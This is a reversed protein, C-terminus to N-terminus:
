FKPIVVRDMNAEGTAPEWTFRLLPVGRFSPDPPVRDDGGADLLFAPSRSAALGNEFAARLADDHTTGPIARWGAGALLYKVLLEKIWAQRGGPPPEVRSLERTHGLIPILHIEAQREAAQLPLSGWEDGRGVRGDGDRDNWAMLLLDGHAPPVRLSYAGVADSRTKGLITWDAQPVRSAVFVAAGSGGRRDFDLRGSALRKEGPLFPEGSMTFGRAGSPKLPLRLIEGAPLIRPNGEGPIALTVPGDTVTVEVMEQRREVSFVAGQGQIRLPGEVLDILVTLRAAKSLSLKGSGLAVEEAGASSALLAGRDVTVSAGSALRLEAQHRFLYTVGTKLEDLGLSNRSVPRPANAEPGLLFVVAILAAIASLMGMGILLRPLVRRAPAAPARLRAEFGEWLAAADIPRKQEEEKTWQVLTSVPPAKKM